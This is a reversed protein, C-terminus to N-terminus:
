AYGLCAILLIVILIVFIISPGTFFACLVIEVIHATFLKGAENFALVLASGIIFVPVYAVAVVVGLSRWHKTSMYKLLGCSCIITYIFDAICLLVIVAVHLPSVLYYLCFSMVTLAAGILLVAAPILYEKASKKEKPKQPAPENVQLASIRDLISKACDYFMSEEFDKGFTETFIVGIRKALEVSDMGEKIQALVTEAEPDYEDTPCSECSTLGMPDVKNLEDRVIDLM